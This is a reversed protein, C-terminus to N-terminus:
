KMRYGFRSLIRGVIASLIMFELVSNIDAVTTWKLLEAWETAADRWHLLGMWSTVVTHLVSYPESHKNIHLVLLYWRKKIHIIWIFGAKNIFFIICISSRYSIKEHWVSRGKKKKKEKQTYLFGCIFKMNVVKKYQSDSFSKKNIWISNHFCEQRSVTGM